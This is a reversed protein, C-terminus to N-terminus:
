CHERAFDANRTARRFIYSPIKWPQKFGSAILCKAKLMRLTKQPLVLSLARARQEKTPKLDLFKIMRRIWLEPDQMVREYHVELRPLDHHRSLFGDIRDRYVSTLQVGKEFKMDGRTALSRAIAASDRKCDIVHLDKLYELYLDITISTRPAKWGWCGRQKEDVLSRIRIQFSERQALIADLPPPNYLDGGASQLIARNLKLFDTDEFFGVPNARAGEKFREGMNVGLAELIGGVM